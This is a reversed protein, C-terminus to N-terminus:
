EVKPLIAYNNSEPNLIKMEQKEPTSERRKKAAKWPLLINTM